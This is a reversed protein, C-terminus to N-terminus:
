YHTGFRQQPKAPLIERRGLFFRDLSSARVAIAAVDVAQRHARGHYEVLQEAQDHLGILDFIRRKDNTAFGRPLKLAEFAVQRCIATLRFISGCRMKTPSMVFRTSTLTITCSSGMRRHLRLTHRLRIVCQLGREGIGNIQLKRATAPVDSAGLQCVGDTGNHSRLSRLQLEGGARRDGQIRVKASLPRRSFLVSVSVSASLSDGDSEVSM